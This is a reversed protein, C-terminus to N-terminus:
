ADLVGALHGRLMAPVHVIDPDYLQQVQAGIWMGVLVVAEHRPSRHAALQRQTRARAFLADVVDIFAFLRRRMEAHLPHCAPASEHLLHAYALSAVRAREPSGAREVLAFLVTRADVPAGPVLDGAVEDDQDDLAATVLAEKTPFHHFLTAKAIGASAAVDRMTTDVYGRRAFSLLAADLVTTRRDLRRRSSAAIHAPATDGGRARPLSLETHFREVTAALDGRAPDFLQMLQVGDWMATFARARARPSRPDSRRSPHVAFAEACVTLRAAHRATFAPHAPHAPDAVFPHLTTVLAVVEPNARISRAHELMPRPSGTDDILAGPTPLSTSLRALVALLIDEKTAYHRALGAHSLSAAAAIDRLSTAQYGPSTFLTMAADLIRARSERGRRSPAKEPM